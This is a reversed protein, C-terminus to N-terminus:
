NTSVLKESRRMKVIQFVLFLIVAWVGAVISYAMVLLWVPSRFRAAWLSREGFHNSHQYYKGWPVMKEVTLNGFQDNDEIKAILLINGKTDIAPLSDAKFEGTVMGTSDTTYSEDDGIKIAGGLREVGIKVEVEPAAMWEGNEYSYVEAKVSRTGEENLTDIVIKAKAIELETVTEEDKPNQRAVAIFKHNSALNWVEKLTVPINSQAMGKEDTKVKGILNTEGISDLYLKVEVGKVPQIKNDRKIQTKVKLYQLSNNETFHKLSLVLSPKEEEQASVIKAIVSFCILLGIMRRNSLTKM